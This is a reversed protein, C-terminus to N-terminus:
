TKHSIQNSISEINRTVAIISLRLQASHKRYSLLSMSAVTLLSLSATPGIRQQRNALPPQLAARCSHSVFVFVDDRAVPLSMSGHM